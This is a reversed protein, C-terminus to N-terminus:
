KKIKIEACRAGSMGQPLDIKDICDNLDVFHRTPGCGGALMGILLVAGIYGWVPVLFPMHVGKFDTDAKCGSTRLVM